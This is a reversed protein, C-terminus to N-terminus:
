ISNLLNIKEKFQQGEGMFVWGDGKGHFGFVNDLNYECEPIKSELSFKMAVEVPAYKCGNDIFYDYYHNTVIVDDHGGDYKIRSSFELFKKSKLVFGGNGVRNKPCWTANPSWPAGIYDFNLFEEQWLQPNIVFGDDNISLIYETDVYHTLEEISFKSFGDHTLKPIQIFEIDDTLNDPKYHSFLKIKNFKISKSSYLLSKVGLEADVCNIELLTVNNLYIM